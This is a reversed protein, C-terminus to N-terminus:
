PLPPVWADLVPDRPREEGEESTVRAVDRPDRPGEAERRTEM